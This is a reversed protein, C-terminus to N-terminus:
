RGDVVAAERLRGDALRLGRDAIRAVQDASHSVWLYARQDPCAAQWGIVLDEIARTTAPDLAATPEDLLLIAPDLQMARLLAVVQREGGSLERASQEWLRPNWGSQEFWPELRRRDFQRGQHVRLQFPQRLNEEVTGASFIPTQHLYIVAARFAPVGAREVRKGRWLLQGEDCGILLALAHLLVTKGAGNPGLLAMRAGPEITLQLQRFLWEEHGPLRCGLDQAQLRPTTQGPEM